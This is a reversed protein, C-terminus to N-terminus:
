RDAECDLDLNEPFEVPLGLEAQRDVFLEALNSQVLSFEAPNNAMWGRRDQVKPDEFGREYWTGTPTVPETRLWSQSGIDYTFEMIRLDRGADCPPATFRLKPEEGDPLYSRRILLIEGGLNRMPLKSRAARYEASVDSATGTQNEYFITAYLEEYFAYPSHPACLSFQEWYKYAGVHRELLAFFRDPDAKILRAIPEVTKDLMVPSTFQEVVAARLVPTFNQGLADDLFDLTFLMDDYRARGFPSAWGRGMFGDEIRMETVKRLDPPMASLIRQEEDSRVIRFDNAYNAVCVNRAYAPGTIAMCLVLASLGSSLKM